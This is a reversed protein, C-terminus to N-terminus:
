WRLRFDKMSVGLKLEAQLTVLTRSLMLKDRSTKLNQGVVGPIDEAALIGEIDTYQGLLKAATKPGVKDVGPINDSKDGVLALYDRFQAPTVGFNQELWASDRHESSFHNYVTIKDRLLQYFDKDTSMIITPVGASSASVAISAIADDAELGEYELHGLRGELRRLLEALAQRLLPPTPTRGAKYEPYEDHRWNPGEGDIVLLAHSPQVNNIARSLSRMWLAIVAEAGTREHEPMAEFVRRLANMADILLLTHM